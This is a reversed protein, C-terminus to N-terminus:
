FPIDKPDVQKAPEDDFNMVTDEDIVPIDEEKVPAAEAPKKSAPAASSSATDAQGPGGQPGGGAKPGLQMGEAVVETSYRKAGDKAEWSRTQLRGEVLVLQGKKLYDRVVEAQRGWFVVNHFETQEQRQGSKDKYYRNTAMRINSVATGTGTMRTEPDAVVRGALIVRNLNM